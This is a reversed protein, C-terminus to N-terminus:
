TRRACAWRRPATRSRCSNGCRFLMQDRIEAFGPTVEALDIDDLAGLASTWLSGTKDSELRVITDILSGRGFSLARNGTRNPRLYM